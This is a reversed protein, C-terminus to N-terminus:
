NLLVETDRITHPHILEYPIPLKCTQFPVIFASLYILNKSCFLSGELRFRNWPLGQTAIVVAHSWLLLTQTSFQCVTWINWRYLVNAEDNTSFYMLSSWSSKPLHFGVDPLFPFLNWCGFELFEYGRNGSPKLSNQFSSFICCWPLCAGDWSNQSIYCADFKFNAWKTCLIYVNRLKFM